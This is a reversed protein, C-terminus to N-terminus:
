KKLFNLVKQLIENQIDDIERITNEKASLIHEFNYKNQVYKAANYSKELFLDDKEHIDKLNEDGHYRSKLLEKVIALPMDLFFVLDPKPIGIKNYEFDFMWELFTDFESEPLKACQHIANSTVYRNCIFTDGNEYLSQWEKKYSIYRDVAFFSSAAYANIDNPNKSLEGNLYMRVPYSSNSEYCPFDLFHVNKFEKRLNEYLLKSQTGKGSADVGDLVIIKGHQM